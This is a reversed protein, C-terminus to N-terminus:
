NKLLKGSAIVKGELVFRYYYMGKQLSGGLRFTGCSQSQLVCTGFVDLLELTSGCFPNDVTIEESFPIPFLKIAVDTKLDKVETCSNVNVQLAGTNHCNYASTFTATYITTVSPSVVISAGTQGTSWSYSPSGSAILVSTEGLCINTKGPTFLVPPLPNVVLTNTSAMGQGFTNAAILTVSYMGPSSFNILPNQAGTNNINVGTGPSVGWLWSVPNNTSVDFFQLTQNACYSGSNSFSTAPLVKFYFSDAVCSYTDKVWYTSNSFPAVSTNRSSSSNSWNYTGPWSASITTTQGPNITFTTVRNVQKLLVFQDRVVGDACLWKGDLRNGEVELVLSGGDSANSYYMADHPFSAQQGGLQGASGAVVYVTGRNNLSDKRYPCSNSSGDYLASSSSLQHVGPSFTTESGYHGQLLRSREYSHSHGCLILDVNYRELLRIFNQRIDILEQETDSNHSGMTYPPHHWWAITWQKTNAALDQKLWTAQTGTTDYLKLNGTTGYSDLSIFHINGYDFAYYSETGSAVGGAQGAAPLSFIDYYPVSVSSTTTGNNYDHNGPAPWLVAKKLINGQYYSFFNNTYENDTGSTYANDGLLIWGDTRKGAAYNLYQDRVAAQNASANGCDGTVWFRYKGPTGPAPSTVFYNNTDGQLVVSSTGVSYYYKTYPSLGSLTIEHSLVVNTNTVALTLANPNNGYQVKSDCALGTEWRLTMSNPTGIQLYPGKLIPNIQGGCTLALLCFVIWM